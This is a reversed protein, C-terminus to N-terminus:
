VTELKYKVFELNSQLKAIIASGQKKNYSVAHKAVDTERISRVDIFSIYTNDMINRIRYKKFLM